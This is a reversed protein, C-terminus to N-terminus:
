SLAEPSGSGGSMPKRLDVDRASHLGRGFHELDSQKVAAAKQIAVALEYRKLYAAIALGHDAPIVLANIKKRVAAVWGRCFLDARAIKNTRKHRSLETRIYDSRAASLRRRLTTFAYQAIQENGGCGVFVWQGPRFKKLSPIGASFFMDVGIAEAVARALFSEWIPADITAAAKVRAEAAESATVDDSSVGIEDMMKQAQRLAAAAEHENSSKALRLCKKIKDLKRDRDTKM